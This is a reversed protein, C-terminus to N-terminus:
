SPKCNWLTIPRLPPDLCPLLFLLSSLDPGALLLCPSVCLISGTKQFRWAQGSHGKEELLALHGLEERVTGGLIWVYSEIASEVKRISYGKLTTWWTKTIGLWLIIKMVLETVKSCNQIMIYIVTNELPRLAVEAFPNNSEWLPWLGYASFQQSIPDNEKLGDYQREAKLVRLSLQVQRLLIPILNCKCNKSKQQEYIGM